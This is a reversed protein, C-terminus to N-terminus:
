RPSIELVAEPGNGIKVRNKVISIQLKEENYDNFPMM